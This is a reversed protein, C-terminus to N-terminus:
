LRKKDSIINNSESDYKSKNVKIIKPTKFCYKQQFYTETSSHINKM